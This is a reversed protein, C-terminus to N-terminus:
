PHSAPLGRKAKWTRWNSAFCFFVLGAIWGLERGIYAEAVALSLLFLVFSMAIDIRRAHWRIHSTAEILRSLKESADEEPPIM